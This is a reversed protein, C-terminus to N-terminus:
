YALAEEVPAMLCCCASMWGPLVRARVTSIVRFTSRM